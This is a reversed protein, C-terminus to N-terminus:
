YAEDDIFRDIARQINRHANPLNRDPAEEGNWQRLAKASAEAAEPPTEGVEEILDYPHEDGPTYDGSPGFFGPLGDNRNRCWSWGADYVSHQYCDWLNGERDKYTYGERLGLYNM